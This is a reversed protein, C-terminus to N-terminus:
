PQLASRIGAAAVDTPIADLDETAAWWAFARDICREREAEILHDVLGQLNHRFFTEEATGDPEFDFVFRDLVSARDADVSAAAEEFTPIPETTM